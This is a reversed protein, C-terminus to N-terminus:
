TDRDPDDSGRVYQEWPPEFHKGSLFAGGRPVGAIVAFVHAKRPSNRKTTSRGLHGFPTGRAMAPSGSCTPWSIKEIYEGYERM